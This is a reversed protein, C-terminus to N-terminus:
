ESIKAYEKGEILIKTEYFSLGLFEIKIKNTKM